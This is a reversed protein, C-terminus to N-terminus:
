RKNSKATKVATSNPADDDSLEDQNNEESSEQLISFVQEQTLDERQGAVVAFHCFEPKAKADEVLKAKYLGDTLFWSKIGRSPKGDDKKGLWEILASNVFTLAIKEEEGEIKIGTALGVWSSSDKNGQEWYGQIKFSNPPIITKPTSPAETKAKAIKESLSSM